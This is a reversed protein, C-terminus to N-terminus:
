DINVTMSWPKEPADISMVECDAFDCYMADRATGKFVVDEAECSYIEFNIGDEVLLEVFDYVTM